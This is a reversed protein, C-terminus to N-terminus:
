NASTIGREALAAVIMDYHDGVGMFARTLSCLKVRRASGPLADDGAELKTVTLDPVDFRVAQTSVLFADDKRIGYAPLDGWAFRIDGPRHFNRVGILHGGHLHIGAEEMAERAAAALANEARGGAQPDIFGGPLAPMGQSPPNKRNILVVDIGDTIVADVAHVVHLNLRTGDARTLAGLPHAAKDPTATIQLALARRVIEAREDDSLPTPM